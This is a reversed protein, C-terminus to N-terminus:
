VEEAEKCAENEALREGQVAIRLLAEREERESTQNAVRRCEQARKRYHEVSRMVVTVDAM